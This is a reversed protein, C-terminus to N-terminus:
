LQYTNTNKEQVFAKWTTGTCSSHNTSYDTITWSSSIRKPCLTMYLIFFLVCVVCLLIIKGETDKRFFFFALYGLEMEEITLIQQMTKHKIQHYVSYRQMCFMYNSFM